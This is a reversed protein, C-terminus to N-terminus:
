KWLSELIMDQQAIENDLMKLKEDLIAKEKALDTDSGDTGATSMGSTSLSTFSDSLALLREQSGGGGRSQQKVVLSQHSGSPSRLNQQSSMPSRQMLNQLSNSSTGPSPLNHMSDISAKRLNQQSTQPSSSSSMPGRSSSHQHQQQMEMSAILTEKDMLQRRLMEIFMDKQALEQTLGNMKAELEAFKVNVYKLEEQHRLKEAQAEAAAMEAEQQNAAQQMLPADQNAASSDNTCLRMTFEELYRQEWKTVDTELRLITDEREQLLDVLTQSSNGGDLESVGEDQNSHHGKLTALERELKQRYKQELHDKKKYTGQLTQLYKQLIGVKEVYPQRKRVEEQLKIVNAQANSLATDLVDIHSRQDNLTAGQAGLEVAMRQKEALDDKHQAALQTLLADRKTIELKLDSDSFSLSQEKQRLQNRTIELHAQLLMVQENLQQKDAELKSRIRTELQERKRTSEIIMDHAAQVKHIDQEFKQLRNVKQYYTELEQRLANNEESLIEVMHTARAAIVEHDIEFPVTVESDTNPSTSPSGISSATDHMSEYSRSNSLLSGSSSMPGASSSEGSLSMAGEGSPSKGAGPYSPPPGRDDDAGMSLSLSPAQQMGFERVLSEMISLGSTTSTSTSITSMSLSVDHHSELSLRHEANSSSSGNDNVRAMQMNDHSACKHLTTNDTDRLPNTMMMAATAAHHNAPLLSEMSKSNTKDIVGGGGSVGNSNNRNRINWESYDSQAPSNAPVPPPGGSRNLIDDSRSQKHHCSPPLYNLRNEEASKSQVHHPIIRPSSSVMVPDTGKANISRQPSSGGGELRDELQLQNNHDM